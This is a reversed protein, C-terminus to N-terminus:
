LIAPNTGGKTSQPKGTYTWLLRADELMFHFAAVPDAPYSVRATNAGENSVRKFCLTIFRGRQNLPLRYSRPNSMEIPAAVNYYDTNVNASATDEFVRMFKTFEPFVGMFLISRFKKMLYENGDPVFKKILVMFPILVKNNFTLAQSAYDAKYYSDWVGLQDAYGGFPYNDNFKGDRYVYVFNHTSYATGVEAGVADYFRRHASTMFYLVQDGNADPVVQADVIYGNYTTNPERQDRFSIKTISGNDMDIMFVNSYESYEDEYREPATGRGNISANINSSFPIKVGRNLYPTSAIGGGIRHMDYYMLVIKNKYAVLRTSVSKGVIINASTCNGMQARPPQAFVKLDLVKNISGNNVTFLSTGDTFYVTNEHICSSDGGQTDSVVINVADTNPDANYTFVYVNEECIIYLSDRLREVSKIRGPYKVFGGVPATFNQHNAITGIGSFYVTDRTILWIRDKWAFADVFDQDPSGTPVARNAILNLAPVAAGSGQQGWHYDFSTIVSGAENARMTVVINRDQYTFVKVPIQFKTNTQGALLTEPDWKVDTTLTSDSLSALGFFSNKGSLYPIVNNALKLSGIFGMIDTYHKTFLGGYSSSNVGVSVIGFRSKLGGDETIFLNNLIPFEGDEYLKDNKQTYGRGLLPIPSQINTNVV